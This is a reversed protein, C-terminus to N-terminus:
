RGFSKGIKAFKEVWGSWEAPRTCKKGWGRPLAEFRANASSAEGSPRHAFPPGTTCRHCKRFNDIFTLICTKLISGMIQSNGPSLSGVFVSPAFDARVQVTPWFKIFRGPIGGHVYSTM